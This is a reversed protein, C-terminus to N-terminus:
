KQRWICVRVYNWYPDTPRRYLTMTDATASVQQLGIELSTRILWFDRDGAGFSTTEGIMAVGGDSTLVLSRMLEFGSGGYTRSWEVNGNFDAKVLMAHISAGDGTDNTSGTLAFGGDATQVVKNFCDNNLGGYTM